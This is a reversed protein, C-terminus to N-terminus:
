PWRRELRSGARVVMGILESKPLSGFHRSDRGEFPNDSALAVTSDGMSRIRKVLVRGPQSPDPAVVLDGVGPEYGPASRALIWDGESLTPEMSAGRVRFLRWGLPVVRLLEGLLLGALEIIEDRTKACGPRM